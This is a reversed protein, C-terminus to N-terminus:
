RLSLRVHEIKNILQEIFDCISFADNSIIIKKEEAEKVEKSINVDAAILIKLAETTYDTLQRM